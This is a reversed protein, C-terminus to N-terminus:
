LLETLFKLSAPPLVTDFLLVQRFACSSFFGAGRDCGLYLHQSGSELNFYRLHHRIVETGDVLICVDGKNYTVSLSHWQNLQLAFQSRLSDSDTYFGLTNGILELAFRATDDRWLSFFNQQGGFKTFRVKMLLTMQDKVCSKLLFDAFLSSSGDFVLPAATFSYRGATITEPMKLSALYAPFHAFDSRDLCRELMLLFLVSDKALRRVDAFSVEPNRGQERVSPAGWFAQFKIENVTAEQQVMHQFGKSLRELACLSPLDLWEYVQRFIPTTLTEFSTNM